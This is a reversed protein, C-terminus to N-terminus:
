NVTAYMDMGLPVTSILAHGSGKAPGFASADKCNFVVLGKVLSLNIKRLFWLEM